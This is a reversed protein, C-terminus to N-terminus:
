SLNFSAVGLRDSSIGYASMYWRGPQAGAGIVYSFDVRGNADTEVLGGEYTDGNPATLWFSVTEGAQLQTANFAFTTGVSGTTQSINLTMDPGRLPATFTAVAQTEPNDQAAVTLAWQGPEFHRPVRMQFNVNGSGDVDYTDLAHV